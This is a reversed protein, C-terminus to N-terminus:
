SDKQAVLWLEHLIVYCALLLSSLLVIVAVSYILALERAVYVILWPAGFTLIFSLFAALYISIRFKESINCLALLHCLLFLLLSGGMLHLHTVEALEALPRPGDSLALDGIAEASNTGLFYDGVSTPAFGTKLLTVAISALLGLTIAVLALSILVKNSRSSQSLRYGPVAATHM